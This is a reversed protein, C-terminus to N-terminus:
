HRGRNREFSGTGRWYYSRGSIKSRRTPNRACQGAHEPEAEGEDGRQPGREACLLIENKLIEGKPMLQLQQCPGIAARPEAGDIPEEPQSQTPAPPGPPAGEHEHLRRRNDAPMGLSEARVPPTPRLRPGALRAEGSGDPSMRSIARALGSHPAGRIWPSSRV